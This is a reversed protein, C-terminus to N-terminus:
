RVSLSGSMGGETDMWVPWQQNNMLYAYIDKVLKQHNWQYSLMIHDNPHNQSAM